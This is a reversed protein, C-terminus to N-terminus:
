LRRVSAGKARVTDSLAVRGRETAHTIRFCPSVPGARGCSLDSTSWPSTRGTPREPGTLLRFDDFSSAFRSPAINAMRVYHRARELAAIEVLQREFCLGEVVMVLPPKVFVVPDIPPRGRNSYCERTWERVFGLDVMAELHRYVHNQPVLDELSVTIPEDLRGATVPGRM